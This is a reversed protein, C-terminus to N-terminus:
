TKWPRVGGPISNFIISRVLALRTDQYPITSSEPIFGELEEPTFISLLAASPFSSHFIIRSILFRKFEPNGAKLKKEAEDPSIVYDGWFCEALIKELQKRM